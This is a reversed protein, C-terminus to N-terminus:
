GANSAIANCGRLATGIAFALLSSKIEFRFGSPQTFLTQLGSHVVVIV